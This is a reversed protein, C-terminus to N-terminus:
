WGHNRWGSEMLGPEVEKVLEPAGVPEVVRLVEAVKNCWAMITAQHMAKPHDQASEYLGAVVSAHASEEFLFGVASSLKRDIRFQDLMMLAETMAEEFSDTVLLDVNYPLVVGGAGVGTLVMVKPTVGRSRLLVTPNRDEVSVLTPVFPMKRLLCKPLYENFSWGKAEKAQTLKARLDYLSVKLIRVTPKQQM